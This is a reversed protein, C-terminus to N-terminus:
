SSVVRNKKFYKLLLIIGISIIFELLEFLSLISIGLFFGIQGGIIGLMDNSSITPSDSIFTYYVSNYNVYLRLYGNRAFELLEQDDDTLPFKDENINKMFKLYNLTPFNAHSNVELDYTQTLCKELCASECLINLNSQSFSNYFANLCDIEEKTTCYTSNRILPTTIDLCKCKDVLKDQYCLTHCFDQDYYSVNLQNFYSFLKVAYSNATSFTDM